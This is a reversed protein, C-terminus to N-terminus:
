KLSLRPPMQLAAGLQPSGLVLCINACQVSPSHLHNLQQLKDHSFCHEGDESSSLVWHSVDRLWRSYTVRSSCLVM